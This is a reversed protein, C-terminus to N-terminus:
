SRRQWFRAHRGRARLAPSALAGDFTFVQSTTGTGVKVWAERGAGALLPPRENTRPAPAPRTEAAGSALSPAPAACTLATTSTWCTTACPQGGAYASPTTDATGFGM